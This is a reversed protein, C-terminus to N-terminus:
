RARAGVHRQEGVQLRPQRVQEARQVVGRAGARGTRSPRRRPARDGVRVRAPECASAGSRSAPAPGRRRRDARRDVGREGAAPQDLEDAVLHAAGRSRAPPSRARRRRRCSAPPTGRRRPARAALVHEADPHRVARRARLTQVVRLQDDVREADSRARHVDAGRHVPERAGDAPRRARRPPAVDHRPHPHDRQEVERGRM